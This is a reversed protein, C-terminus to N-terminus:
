RRGYEGTQNKNKTGYNKGKRQEIAGNPTFGMDRKFSSKLILFQRARAIPHLVYFSFTFRSVHVRNVAGEGPASAISFILLWRSLRSYIPRVLGSGRGGM